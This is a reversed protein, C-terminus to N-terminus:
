EELLQDYPGWPASPSARTCSIVRPVQKEHLKSPSKLGAQAQDWVYWKKKLNGVAVQFKLRGEKRIYTNPAISKEIHMARSKDGENQYTANINKDLELYTKIKRSFEKIWRNLLINNLRM